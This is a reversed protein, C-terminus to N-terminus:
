INNSDGYDRMPIEDMLTPVIGFDVGITDEIERAFVFDGYDFCKSKDNCNDWHYISFNYFIACIKTTLNTPPDLPPIPGPFQELAVVVEKICETVAFVM